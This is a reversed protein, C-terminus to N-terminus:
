EGAEKLFMAIERLYVGNDFVRHRITTSTLQLRNIQILLIINSLCLAVIIWDMNSM